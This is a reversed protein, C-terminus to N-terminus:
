DRKMNLIRLAINRIYGKECKEIEEEIKFPNVRFGSLLGMLEKVFEEENIEERVLEESIESIKETLDEPLKGKKILEVVQELFERM